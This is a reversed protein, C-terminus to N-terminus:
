RERWVNCRIKKDVVHAKMSYAKFKESKEDGLNNCITELDHITFISAFM